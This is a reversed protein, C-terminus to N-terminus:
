SYSSIALFPYRVNNTTDKTKGFYIDNLSMRCKNEMDEVFEGINKVHGQGFEGIVEKDGENQRTISGGLNM